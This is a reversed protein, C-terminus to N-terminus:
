CALLIKLRMRFAYAKDGWSTGKREVYLLSGRSNDDITQNQCTSVDVHWTMVLFRTMGYLLVAEFVHVYAKGQHRLFKGFRMLKRTPSDWGLIQSFLCELTQWEPKRTSHLRSSNKNLAGGDRKRGGDGRPLIVAIM